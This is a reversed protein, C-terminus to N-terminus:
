AASWKAHAAAIKVHYDNAAYGVGNYGKAFAVSDRPNNSIARLAALLKANRIFAVFADLHDRESRKMADWFAEVTDFGALKHNFGMIQYRGVSASMLAARPALQMARYLRAWEGEGGVYLARNWKASSLNPHSQRFRGDTNRDFIHAEFLIKPLHPGDLFGGEGDLALIDARVDRYWGGKSEVEDVARIQAVSCALATAAAQYDALTLGIQPAVAAPAPTRAQWLAGM